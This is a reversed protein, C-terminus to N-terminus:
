LHKIGWTKARSVIEKLLMIAMGNDQNEPHVYPLDLYYRNNNLIGDRYISSLSYKM